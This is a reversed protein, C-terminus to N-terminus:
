LKCLKKDVFLKVKYGAERYAKIRDRMRDEDLTWRSKIEVIMKSRPLYFDPIATREKKLKSDYYTIRLHEVEYPVKKADLEQAYELEYSSRYFIIKNDWTTHWGSKYFGSRFSPISRGKRYSLLQADQKSRTEINLSDLINWMGKSDKGYKAAMVNLSLEDDWYESRLIERIRDFEVQAELTGLYSEEFGVKQSLFPLLRFRKCVELKLLRDGCNLRGCIRCSKSCQHCTAKKNGVTRPVVIKKSCCSCGMIRRAAKQTKRRVLSACDQSCHYKEQSPFELEYEEVQFKTQCCYCSVDFKKLHGCFEITMSTNSGSKGPSVSDEIDFLYRQKFDADVDCLDLSKLQKM